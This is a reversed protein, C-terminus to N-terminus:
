ATDSKLNSIPLENVPFLSKKPDNINRQDEHVCRARQPNDPSLAPMCSSIFIFHAPRQLSAPCKENLIEIQVARQM